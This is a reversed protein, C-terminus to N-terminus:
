PPVDLFKAVADLSEFQGASSLHFQLLAEVFNKTQYMVPETNEREDGYHVAANRYNRLHTLVQIAYGSNPCVFAARRMTVKHGERPKTNTLTELISWLELFCLHWDTNDLARVYRVLATEIQSRFPIKSLSVKVENTFELM